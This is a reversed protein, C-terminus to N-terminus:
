GLAQVARERGAGQRDDVAGRVHAVELLRLQPGLSDALEDVACV